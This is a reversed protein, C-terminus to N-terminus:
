YEEGAFTHNSFGANEYAEIVENAEDRLKQDAKLNQSIAVAESYNM